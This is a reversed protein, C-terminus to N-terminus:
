SFAGHSWKAETGVEVPVVDQHGMLLIPTLSSDTGKWRFLLNNEGVIEHDLKSYVKPFTRELYGHFEAFAERSAKKQEDTGGGEWSITPFKVAGSLHLAAKPADITEATHPLKAIQKSPLFITRGIVVLVVVLLVLGILKLLTKM